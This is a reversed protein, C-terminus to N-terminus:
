KRWLGSTTYWIREGVSAERYGEAAVLPSEGVERGDVEAVIEGLRTGPQASAPLEEMIRVRRQVRSSADVLGVVSEEAVIGVMEDRRYPVQATAYRDGGVVLSRRDYTAFGHDLLRVSDEFREEDDLVVAVYSEDGEEASAVLSPGAEPTTGTKVGTAPPYLSLLENTNALPIERDQTTISAYTTGVIREFEEYGMALRAMEALDRASAYHDRDDFGVPNEFHTDDLGLAGARRNMTEVFGEVGSAGGLHEALAYAADDGSAILTAMLLERVSLVDGAFLGVNSYDPTAFAAAEESVTVEKDLIASELAVLAVMIKTTSAIPLRQGASEGALYEGSHADALAWARASVEPGSSGSAPGDASPAGQALAAAGTGGYAVLALAVILAALPAGRIKPAEIVSV